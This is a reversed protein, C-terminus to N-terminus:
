DRIKLYVYLLLVITALVIILAITQNRRNDFSIPSVYPKFTLQNSLRSYVNGAEDEYTLSASIVYETNSFPSINYDFIKQGRPELTELSMNPTGSILNYSGPIEDSVTLNYAIEDGVNILTLEVNKDSSEQDGKFQKYILVLPKPPAVDLVTQEITTNLKYATANHYVVSGPFSKVPGKMDPVLTYQYRIVDGGRLIDYDMELVGSKLYTGPPKFDRISVNYAPMLGLNHVMVSVNVEDGIIPTYNSQYKEVFFFPSVSYYEAYVTFDDILMDECNFIPVSICASRITFTNWGKQLRSADFPIICDKWIGRGIQCVDGVLFDNIYVPNNYLDVEYLRMKLYSNQPIAYLFFRQTTNLGFYQANSWALRMDDGLYFQPMEFVPVSNNQETEQASTFYALLLLTCLTSLTNKM